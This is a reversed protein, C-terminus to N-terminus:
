PCTGRNGRETASALNHEEETTIRSLDMHDSTVELVGGLGGICLGLNHCKRYVKIAANQDRCQIKVRGSWFNEETSVLQWQGPQLPKDHDTKEWTSECKSGCMNMVAPLWQEYGITTRIDFVFSLQAEM